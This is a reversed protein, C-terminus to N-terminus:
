CSSTAVSARLTPPFFYRTPLRATLKAISIDFTPHAERVKPPFEFFNDPPALPKHLGASQCARFSFTPRSKTKCNVRHREATAPSTQGRCPEEEARSRGHEVGETMPRRM